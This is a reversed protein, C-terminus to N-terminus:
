NRAQKALIQEMRTLTQDMLRAAAEIAEPRTLDVGAGKLLELPPKSSGGSLMSLYAERAPEGKSQVLDALAIGSSIGTAYSFVYFKYYLHPIYAWEIGDDPGMTFDPGYYAHVLERYTSDLFEATLPTGKEAAEHCRLEFEAFLTQRYLTTRIRDVMENLLYLREEDTKANAVLYDSLLKENCTSAIEAVFPAYGSSAYPQTSGSLHSHLAHGFEHALTSVDDSQNYFNMKVFPHVGYLSACSAGSDKDRHPYVDVWGQSPDLGTRLVALYKEGLPALAAPLLARAEEYTVERPASKVMPPYLDFLRLEQLGMLRKRMRIYRHLPALNARVSRVLNHYVAPDLNDRDLYAQLASDYGRARALFLTFNVQGSFVAAFAHRYTQLTGFFKEVTERRVRRDDSARYRGYNSLTLQVTRGQEDRLTPLPVDALLAKFAKEFDSPLENLDIEAFQNDGAESLLRERAPDLVHARRRRIEDIWGRYPGIAPQERYARALAEEDLALVEDRLSAAEAMLDAMAAQARENRAQLGTNALDTELRLNAYLTLRNTLLRTKFYEDLCAALSEPRSLTGRFAALRGRGGAAELLARDFAADDPFLADLKWRYREPIASRAMSSDPALSAAAPPAPPAEGPRPAALAPATAALALALTAHTLFRRM